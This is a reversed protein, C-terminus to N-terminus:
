RRDRRPPKKPGKDEPEDPAEAVCVPCEGGRYIKGCDPKLCKSALVLTMDSCQRCALVPTRMSTRPGGDAGGRNVNQGKEKIWEVREFPSMEETHGCATCLYPNGSDKDKPMNKIPTEQGTWIFYVCGVLFVGIMLPYLVQKIGGEEAM